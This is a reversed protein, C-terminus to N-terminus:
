VPPLQCVCSPNGLDQREHWDGSIKGVCRVNGLHASIDTVAFSPSSSPPGDYPGSDAQTSTMMSVHISTLTAYSPNPISAYM